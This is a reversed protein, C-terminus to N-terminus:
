QHGGSPPWEGAPGRGPSWPDAPASDLYAPNAVALKDVV